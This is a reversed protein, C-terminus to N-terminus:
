TLDPDNPGKAKGIRQLKKAIAKLESLSLGELPKLLAERASVERPESPTKNGTTNTM